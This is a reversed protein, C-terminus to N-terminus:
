QLHHTIISQDMLSTSDGGLDFVAPKPDKELYEGDMIGHVYAEGILEYQGNDLKRLVFPVIAGFIICILDGPKSHVPLLGVYGSTSLFPRRNHLCSMAVYYALSTRSYLGLRLEPNAIRQKLEKYGEAADNTARHRQTTTWMLDACPIRWVAEAWRETDKSCESSSGQSEKCFEEIDDFFASANDYNFDCDLGPTWVRGTRMITDVFTGTMPLVDLSHTPETPCCVTHQGSASFLGFKKPDGCPDRIRTSFDPVWSPLDRLRKSHQCWSLIDTHGHQLLVRAVNKYCEEVTISYDPIINLVQCDSALGLLGYIRDRPNTSQRNSEASSTVVCGRHLLEILPEPSGIEKQYKRRFGSLVSLVPSMTNEMMNRLKPGQVLDLLDTHTINMMVRLMKHSIYLYAASLHRFSLRRSGCIFTVERSVSVEQVIWVRTWYSRESLLKFARYPYETSDQETLDDIHKQKASRRGQPDPYPWSIYDAMRLDLIGAESAWKGVSDLADMAADSDEVATGLWVIASEANSYIEPM